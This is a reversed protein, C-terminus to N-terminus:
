IVSQRMIEQWSKGHRTKFSRSFASLNKYNLIDFVERPKLKKEFLLTSEYYYLLRQKFDRFNQNFYKKFELRFHSESIELHRALENSTLNQIPTTEIFHYIAKARDALNFDTTRILEQPIRRWHQQWQKQLTKLLHLQRADGIFCFDIGALYLKAFEEDKMQSNYYIIEILPYTKRLQALENITDASIEKLVLLFHIEHKQIHNHVSSLEFHDTNLYQINWHDLHYLVEDQASITSPGSHIALLNSL